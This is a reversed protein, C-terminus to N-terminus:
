LISALTLLIATVIVIGKNQMKTKTTKIIISKTKETEDEFGKIVENPMRKIMKVCGYMFMHACLVTCLYYIFCM